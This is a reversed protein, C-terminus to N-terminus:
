RIADIQVGIEVVLVAVQKLFFHAVIGRVSARYLASIHGAEFIDCQRLFVLSFLSYILLDRRHFVENKQEGAYERQQKEAATGCWGFVLSCELCVECIIQVLM